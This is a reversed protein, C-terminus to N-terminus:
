FGVGMMLLPNGSQTPTSAPELEMTFAWISRHQAAPTSTTSSVSADLDLTHTAATTNALSILSYPREDVSDKGVFQYDDTTQEDPSDADDIQLRFEATRGTNALDFGWYAGVLIDGADSQALSATALNNGFDSTGLNLDAETYQFAHEDFQHLNLAFVASHNRTQTTGSVTSAIETFTNSSTGLTYVRSMLVTTLDTAATAEFQAQPTSSSAEGSRTLSSVAQTTGDGSLIQAYSLILWDESAVGPTFTIAGGNTPTTSLADDTSRENFFWDTNETVDDSLNIAVLSVRDIIINNITNSKAQMKIGESSVATWVTMWQYVVYNTNASVRTFESEAFATSGHVMQIGQVIGASASAFQATVLILYKDGTSFNGSTIAASTVDTYTASTTTFPTNVLASAHAIAAAHTRIPCLLGAVLLLGAITRKLQLM